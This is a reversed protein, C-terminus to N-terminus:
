RELVLEVPKRTPLEFEAEACLQAQQPTCGFETQGQNLAVCARAKYKGPKVCAPRQCAMSAGCTDQALYTGDWVVESGAAGLATPACAAAGCPQVECTDCSATGCAASISFATAGEADTITLWGTGCSADCLYDLPLDNGPLMRISVSGTGCDEAAAGGSSMPPAVASGGLGVDPSGASAAGGSTAVGGGSSARTGASSGPSDDGGVSLGRTGGTGAADDPAPSTPSPEIGASAGASSGGATTFERGSCAVLSLTAVSLWACVRIQRM